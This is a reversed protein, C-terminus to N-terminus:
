FKRFLNNDKTCACEGEFVQILVGPTNCKILAIVGGAAEISLSLPAVDLLLLDQTKKSTDGAPIA